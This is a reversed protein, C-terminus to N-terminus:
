GEKTMEQALMRNVVYFLLLIVVMSLFETEGLGARSGFYADKVGMFLHYLPNFKIWEWQMKTQGALFVPTTAFVALVLYLLSFQKFDNLLLAFVMSSLAMLLSLIIVQPFVRPLVALGMPFGLNLLTLLVTFVCDSLLFLLVKSLIFNSRRMPLVGHLRLVGMQKEKFIMSAIGLFGIAVLEFFLFETTIELRKKMEKSYSGIVHASPSQKNSLLSLAYLRRLKDIRESGSSEMLLTTKKSLDLGVTHRNVREELEELTDVALLQSSAGQALDYPDYIYVPYIDQDLHVYVLNIYASYLVLSGLILLFFNSALMLRLDKKMFSKLEDMM